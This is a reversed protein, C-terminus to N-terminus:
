RRHLPILLSPRVGTGAGTVGGTTGVSDYNDRTTTGAASDHGFASSGPGHQPEDHHKKTFLGM